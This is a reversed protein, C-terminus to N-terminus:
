ADDPSPGVSRLQEAFFGLTNPVQSLLLLLSSLHRRERPAGAASAQPRFPYRILDVYFRLDAARLSGLAAGFSRRGERLARARHFRHAGRGYRYHQRLFSGLSLAHDHDVVAEPLHLMSHGRQICRDCFDRDEGGALPFTADFGHLEEFLTRSLAVNNSAFFPAHGGTGSETIYAVLLQSACSYPNTTLTNVTHGGLVLGPRAELAQLLTRAWSPRPRCDDDTFALFDSTAAAAGLNRAAAPGRHPQALWTIDLAGFDRQRLATVDATPGGDEAVVVSLLAPPLDQLALAELCRALQAPRRHTPVVVTIGGSM